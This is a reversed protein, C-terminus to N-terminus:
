WGFNLGIQSQQLTNRTNNMLDERSKVSLMASLYLRHVIEFRGNLSFESYNWQSNFLFPPQPEAFYQQLLSGEGGKRIREFRLNLLLRPIPKYNTYVTFRDFNNGMWDGVDYGAHKYQQAPIFNNYVFPNVRTYEAGISLNEVVDHKQVGLTMGLQNRSKNKNFMTKFRLEDVFLTGYLHSKPIVNRLSLQTFLQTNASALNNYGMRNTVDIVKFFMMPFLYPVFFRDSYVISEGLSFAIGKKPTLTATHTVLYSPIYQERRGGYISNGLNYIRTSDIVNSQLWIHAYHFSFWNAPKYDLRIFPFSPIKSGMVIKGRQGYGWNMHDNGITVVINKGQYALSTRLDTFNISKNVNTDLRLGVTEETYQQNINFGSGGRSIDRYYMQFAVHKGMFIKTHFGNGYEHVNKQSGSTIKAGTVPDIQVFFAANGLSAGRWRGNLDKRFLHSQFTSDGTKFPLEYEKLFFDLEAKELRNLNNEQLKLLHLANVISTQTIPQIIDDLEIFGKDAMRTLYPYIMSRTDEWIAQAYIKSISLSVLLLFSLFKIRM